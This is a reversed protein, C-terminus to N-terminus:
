TGASGAFEPFQSTLSGLQTVPSPMMSSAAARSAARTQIPGPALVNATFRITQKRPQPEAQQPIKPTSSGSSGAHPAELGM